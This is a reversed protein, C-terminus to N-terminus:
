HHENVLDKLSPNFQIQNKYSPYVISYIRKLEVLASAHEEHHINGIVDHESFNNWTGWDELRNIVGNFNYRKCLLIFAEMDAWNDRQLVFKLLVTAGTTDILGRLFDFNKLLQKHHGGLRVREYVEKTGADISIFYQSVNNVIPNNSLQKELLLGNTFLRITQNEPPRYNHLLPRMIASALPDGNGTMIVHAPQDFKELLQILHDVMKSKRDFDSGSTEMKLDSRCSPCQLNCSDDINISIYYCDDVDRRGTYDVARQDNHLIGCRDVACHTFKKQAIDQQLTVAAPTLWIDQLTGFDLINGVSLPLWAECACIFCEGARDVVLVRSVFDCSNAITLGLDKNRPISKYSLQNEIPIIM